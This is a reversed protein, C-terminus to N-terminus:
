ATLFSNVAFAKPLAVQVDAHTNVTIRISDSKDESYPNVLFSVAGWQGVYLQSWDGYILPYVATGNDDGIPVISTSQFKFGDLTGNEILFRGSGADKSITKLAAKLKPHLVYGLSNETANDEEILGQLEVMKAYNAAAAAVQTSVNIGPNNLIGTPAVGGPGNLAAGNITQAWGGSLKRRVLNEVDVSRQSLLRNSMSVSAMARKPSLTPGVFQNKQSTGEAGEALWQFSYNGAVPMPIDGGSLGTLVTAGMTEIWLKAELDDIVRPAQNQVLQGGYNGSDQSVTQQDARLFSIPVLMRKRGVTDAFTVGSNRNENEAMEQVEKEAGDFDKNNGALRLHRAFSYREKIKRKEKGEGDNGDEDLLSTGAAARAIVEEKQRKELDLAAEIEDDLDKLDGRIQTVETKEEDTLARKEEKEANKLIADWKRVLEARKQKLADSKKM